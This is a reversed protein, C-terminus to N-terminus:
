SVLVLLKNYVGHETVLRVMYMGVPLGRRAFTVRHDGAALPGSFLTRLRRGELDFVSLDVNSMAHNIRFAFTTSGYTPNAGTFRLGEGVTSGHALASPHPVALALAGVLAAGGLIRLSWAM